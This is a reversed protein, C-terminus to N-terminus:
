ELQLITRRRKSWVLRIVADRREDDLNKLVLVSKEASSPHQITQFNSWVSLTNSSLLEMERDQFTSVLPPRMHIETPFLPAKTCTGNALGSVYEQLPNIAVCSASELSPALM